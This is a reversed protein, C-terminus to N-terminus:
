LNGELVEIRSSLEQVARIIPAIFETYRLGLGHENEIYGAFDIGLLDLQEKVDQAILGYHTRTFTYETEITQPVLYVEGNEDVFDLEEERIDTYDKWKYSVPRLSNIFDLGLDSDAVNDKMNADSTQITGNTAFVDDWRFSSTGIDYTNDAGPRTNGGSEIQLRETGTSTTKNAATYFRLETSARATSTGGGFRASNDTSSSFGFFPIWKGDAQTYPAAAFSCYQVTNNSDTTYITLQNPPLNKLISLASDPSTTGIGVNGNPLITLKTQASTRGGLRFEMNGTGTISSFAIGNEFNSDFYARGAYDSIGTYTTASAGLAFGSSGIDLRYQATASGGTDNNRISMATNANQSKVINLLQEPTATGIGVRGNEDLVMINNYSSTGRQRFFLKGTTDYGGYNIYARGPLTAHDRGYFELSAGNTSTTSALVRFGVDDAYRLIEGNSGSLVIEGNVDLPKTPTNTGVGVYGDSGQVFLANAQGVGEVRFDVDAGGENVVLGGDISAGASLTLATTGIIQDADVMGTFADNLPLIKDTLRVAM